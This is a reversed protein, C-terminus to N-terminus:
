RERPDSLDYFVIPPLYQWNAVLAPGPPKRARHPVSGGRRRPAVKPEKLELKIGIPISESANKSRQRGIRSEFKRSVGTGDYLIEGLGFMRESTHNQYFERNGPVGGKRKFYSDEM